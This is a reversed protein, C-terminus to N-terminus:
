EALAVWRQRGCGRDMCCSFPQLLPMAAALATCGHHLLLTSACRHPWSLTTCSARQPQSALPRRRPARPWRWAARSRRLDAPRHLSFTLGLGDSDNARLRDLLLILLVSARRRATVFLAVATWCPTERSETSHTVGFCRQVYQACGRSHVHVHCMRVYPEFPWVFVRRVSRWSSHM